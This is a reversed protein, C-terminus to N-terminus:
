IKIGLFIEAMSGGGELTMGVGEGLVTKFINMQRYMLMTEQSGVFTVQRM